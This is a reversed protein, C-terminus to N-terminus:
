FYKPLLIQQNEKPNTLRCEYSQHIDQVSASSGPPGIVDCDHHKALQKYINFVLREMGGILPPFNRTILLFRKM